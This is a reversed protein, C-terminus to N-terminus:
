CLTALTYCSRCRAIITVIILGGLSLETGGAPQTSAFSFLSLPGVTDPIEWQLNSYVYNLSHNNAHSKSIYVCLSTYVIKSM